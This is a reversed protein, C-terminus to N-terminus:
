AIRFIDGVEPLWGGVWGRVCVCVKVVNASKWNHYNAEKMLLNM